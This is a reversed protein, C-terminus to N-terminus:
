IAERDIRRGSMTAAPRNEFHTIKRIAQVGTAHAFM